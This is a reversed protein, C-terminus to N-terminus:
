LGVSQYPLDLVNAVAVAQDYKLFLFLSRGTRTTMPEVGLARLVSTTDRSTRYIAHSLATLLTDEDGRYQHFAERFLANPLSQVTCLRRVQAKGVKPLSCDLEVARRMWGLVDETSFYPEDTQPSTGCAEAIVQCRLALREAPDVVLAAAEIRACLRDTRDDLLRQAERETALSYEDDSPIAHHTPLQATATM